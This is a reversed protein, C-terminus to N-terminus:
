LPFINIGSMNFYKNELAYKTMNIICRIEMESIIIQMRATYVIRKLAINRIPGLLKFLRVVYVFNAM